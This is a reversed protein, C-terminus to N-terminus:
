ALSSFLDQRHYPLNRACEAFMVLLSRRRTSSVSRQGISDLVPLVVCFAFQVLQLAHKPRFFCACQQIPYCRACTQNRLGQEIRLLAFALVFLSPSLSFLRCLSTQWALSLYVNTEERKFVICYLSLSPYISFYLYLFRDPAMEKIPLISLCARVRNERRRRRRRGEGGKEGRADLFPLLLPAAM